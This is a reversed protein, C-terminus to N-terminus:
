KFVIFQYGFPELEVRAHGAVITVSQGNLLDTAGNEVPVRFRRVADDGNIVVILHRGDDATMEVIRSRRATTTIDQLPTAEKGIWPEARDFMTALDAMLQLYRGDEFPGTGWFDIGTVGDVLHNASQYGLLDVGALPTASGAPTHGGSTCSIVPQGNLAEVTWQCVSIMDPIGGGWLDTEVGFGPQSDMEIAPDNPYVYTGVTPATLHPAFTTIDSCNTSYLIHELYPKYYGGSWTYTRADPNADRAMDAINKVYDAGQECRWELWRQHLTGGPRVDDPWTLATGANGLEARFAKECRKCFCINNAAYGKAAAGEYDLMFGDAGTKVMAGSVLPAIAAEWAEGRQAVYTPCWSLGAIPKGEANWARAEEPPETPAFYSYHWSNTLSTEIDRAQLAKVSSLAKSSTYARATGTCALTDALGELVPAYEGYLSLSYVWVGVGHGPQSNRVQPMQPTPLVVLLASNEAENGQDSELHWYLMYKGPEIGKVYLASWWGGWQSWPVDGTPGFGPKIDWMPVTFRTMSQGDREITETEFDTKTKDYGDSMVACVLEVAKTPYDIVLRVNTAAADENPNAYLVLQRLMLGQTYYVADNNRGGWCHPFLASSPAEARALGAFLLLASAIYVGSVCHSLRWKM